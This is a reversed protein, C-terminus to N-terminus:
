LMEMCEYTLEQKSWISAALQQCDFISPVPIALQMQLYTIVLVFKM